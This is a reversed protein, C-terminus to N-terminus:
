VRIKLLLTGPNKLNVLKRGSTRVHEETTEIQHNITKIKSRRNLNIIERMIEGIEWRGRGWTIITSCAGVHSVYTNTNGTKEGSRCDGQIMWWPPSRCPLCGSSQRGQPPTHQHPTALFGRGARGSVRRPSCAPCSCWTESQWRPTGWRGRTWRSGRRGAQNQRGTWARWASICSGVPIHTYKHISM